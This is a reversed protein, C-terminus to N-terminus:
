ENTEQFDNELRLSILKRKLDRDEILDTMKINKINCGVYPCRLRNNMRMADEISDKDYVHNCRKHRVPNKLLLKTIPDTTVTPLEHLMTGGDGGDIEIPESTKSTRPQENAIRIDNLEKVFINYRDRVNRNDRQQEEISKKLNKEFDNFSECTLAEIAAGKQVFDQELENLNQVINAM